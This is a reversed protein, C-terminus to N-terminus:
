TQCIAAAVEALVPAAEDQVVVEARHDYATPTLNVIALKRALLPLSNVPAVELSSGVVLLLDSTAVAEQARHFDEPLIDGFLVVDPRVMGGCEECLPPIEGEEVKKLLTSLPGTHYCRTCHATRLHGHVELVKQSGARQHLGDINQTIITTVYGEKELDALAYHAPNPKAKLM